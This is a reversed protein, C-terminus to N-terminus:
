YTLKKLLEKSRIALTCRGTELLGLAASIGAIAVPISEGKIVLIVALGIASGSFVASLKERKNLM